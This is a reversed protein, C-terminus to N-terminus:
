AGGDHALFMRDHRRGPPARMEADGVGLVGSLNNM